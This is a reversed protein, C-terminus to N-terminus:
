ICMWLTNLDGFTKYLWEPISEKGARLSHTHGSPFQAGWYYTHDEQGSEIHM